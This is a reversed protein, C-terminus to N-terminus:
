YYYPSVYPAKARARLAKVLRTRAAAEVEAAPGGPFDRRAERRAREREDETAHGLLLDDVGADVAELAEDAGGGEGGNGTAIDLARRYLPALPAFEDGADGGPRADLWREIERRVRVRKDTKPAAAAARGGAKRDRHQAWAREVQMRCFTLGLGKTGRAPDRRTEFAREIGELIADLPIAEAEWQAVLALDRPSLFFPAGRRKLFAAAVAQYYASQGEGSM